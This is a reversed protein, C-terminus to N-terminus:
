FSLNINNRGFNRRNTGFKDINNMYYSAMITIVFVTGAIGFYLGSKNKAYPVLSSNEPSDKMYYVLIKKNNLINNLEINTQSYSTSFTHNTNTNNYKKKNVIYEYTTNIDYYTTPMNNNYDIRSQIVGNTIEGSISGYLGSNDVNLENIGFGILVLSIILGIIFIWIIM